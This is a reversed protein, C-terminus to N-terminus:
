PEDIGYGRSKMRALVGNRGFLEDIPVVALAVDHKEVAEVALRSAIHGARHGGIGDALVFLGLDRDWALSDENRARVRGIDSLAACDVPVLVAPTM